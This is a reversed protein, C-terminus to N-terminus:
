IFPDHSCCDQWIRRFAQEFERSFAVADCLRSQAMHNRLTSRQHSLQALNAALNKAIRIYEESSRAIWQPLGASTLVSSVLRSAHRNGYLTVVPVGMWLAECATTHGSWPFTDLAIDIEHYVSLHGPGARSEHRLDLRQPDIGRSTWQQMFYDRVTGTLKHRYMLLRSDPVAHLVQAWLDLVRANMKALANLSGFTVQGTTMAPFQNVPPAELPPTYCCFGGPLRLLKETHRTPEDPPDAVADTIRYDITSLGTTNPYGLYTVQLPAPKRCFTLLRHRATHGSLDVLIDIQDARVRAAFQEDSLGSIEHWEDALSRLRATMDDPAPVEAYLAIEVASRDHGTLLPLLFYAVPHRKFDSSVFGVRLARDPNRDHDSESSHLPAPAIGQACVKPWLLHERYITEADQDPDYNLTFVLNSRAALYDPKCALAERFCALAEGLRGADKLCSGLNNYVEVLDPRLRLAAQFAVVAEDFRGLENLAAGLNSLAEAYSPRLQVAQHYAAVAEVLRGKNQLAIGLNNHAEPYNPQLEIARQNDQIAEDLRGMMKHIQALNYHADAYDPKHLLAQEYCARAEALRDLALLAAGLNNHSEAHDPKLELSRRYHVIASEIQGRHHRAAGLNAHAEAREPQLRVVQECAAIAEDHRGLDVLTGGLQFWADTHDPNSQLVQRFADVAPALQGQQQLSIGLLYRTHLDHPVIQLIQRYIQEAQAFQGSRHLNVAQNLAASLQEALDPVPATGPQRSLKM